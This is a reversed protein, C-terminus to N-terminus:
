LQSDLYKERIADIKMKAVMRVTAKFASVLQPTINKIKHLDQGTRKMYQACAEVFIDDDLTKLYEEFDKQYDREEITVIIKNNEQTANVIYDGTGFLAPGVESLVGNLERLEKESLKRM